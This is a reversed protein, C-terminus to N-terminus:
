NVDDHEEANGLGRLLIDVTFAPYTSRELPSCEVIQATKATIPCAISSFPSVL